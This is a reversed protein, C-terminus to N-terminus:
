ELVDTRDARPATGYSWSWSPESVLSRLRMFPREVLVALVFASAFNALTATVYLELLYRSPSTPAEAEDGVGSRRKSRCPM